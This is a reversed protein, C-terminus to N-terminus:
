YRILFLSDLPTKSPVLAHVLRRTINVRRERGMRGGSKRGELNGRREVM